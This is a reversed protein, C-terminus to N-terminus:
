TCIAATSAAPRQPRRPFFLPRHLSRPPRKPPTHKATHRVTHGYYPTSLAAALSLLPRAARIPHRTAPPTYGVFGVYAVAVHTDM